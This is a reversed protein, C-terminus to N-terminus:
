STISTCNKRELHYEFESHCQHVWDRNMFPVTAFANIASVKMEYSFNFFYIKKKSRYLWQKQM